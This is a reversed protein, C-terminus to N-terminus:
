IAKYKILINIQDYNVIHRLLILIYEIFLLDCLTSELWPIERDYGAVWDIKDGCGELIQSLKGGIECTGLLIGKKIKKQKGKLKTAESLSALNIGNFLGAIRGGKGHGALYCIRISDSLVFKKIWYTMDEKDHYMRYSTKINRLRAWAEVFPGVSDSETLDDSWPHELIFLTPESSM